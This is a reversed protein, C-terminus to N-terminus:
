EDLLVKQIIAMLFFAVTILLTGLITKKGLAKYHEGRGKFYGYFFLLSVMLGVFFFIRVLMLM